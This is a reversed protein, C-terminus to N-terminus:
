VPKHIDCVRQVFKHAPSTFPVLMLSGMFQRSPKRRLTSQACLIILCRSAGCISQLGLRFLRRYLFNARLILHYALNPVLNCSIKHLNRHYRNAKRFGACFQGFIPTIVGTIKILAINQIIVAFVHGVYSPFHSLIM